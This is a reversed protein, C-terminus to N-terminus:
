SKLMILSAALILAGGAIAGLSPIENFFFFALLPITILTLLLLVSAEQAKIYKMSKVWFLFPLATSFVGLGILLLWNDASLSVKDFASFSIMITGFIFAWASIELGSYKRLHRALTHYAALFIGSILAFVNGMFSSSLSGSEFYFVLLTGSLALVLAYYNKSSAREKLLFHAFIFTYVPSLQQLFQATAIKTNVFAMMMTYLMSTYLFGLVAYIGLKQRNMGSFKVTKTIFVFLILVAAAIFSRYFLMSEISIFPNLLRVIIAVFSWLMVALLVYEHGKNM